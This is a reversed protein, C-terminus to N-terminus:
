NKVTLIPTIRDKLAYVFLKVTLGTFIAAIITGERAGVVKMNFFLLSLIISASVSTIDFLLKIDSFKKKATDSIAKVFAEGANMIVDAIVSLSIGFGLVVVGIIVMLLKTFYRDTPIGDVILLGLDTFWGFIFSLPIQLFQYAKFCRKLIIIQGLM